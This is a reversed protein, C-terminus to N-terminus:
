AILVSKFFGMNVSTTNSVVASAMPALLAIKLTTLATRNLGSGNWWGSRRTSTHSLLARSLRGRKPAEM